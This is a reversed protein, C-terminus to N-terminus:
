IMLLVRAFLGSKQQWISKGLELQLHAIDILSRYLSQRPCVRDSFPQGTLCRDKSSQRTSGLEWGCRGWSKPLKSYKEAKSLHLLNSGSCKRNWEVLVYAPKLSVATCKKWVTSFSYMNRIHGQWLLRWRPIDQSQWYSVSWFWRGWHLRMMWTSGASCFSTMGHHRVPGATKGCTPLRTSSTLRLDMSIFQVCRSTAPVIAEQVGM